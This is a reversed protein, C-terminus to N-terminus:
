TPISSKGKLELTAARFEPTTLPEVYAHGHTEFQRRYRRFNRRTDPGMQNLLAEYSSSLPLIANASYECDSAVAGISSVIREGAYLEYQTLPIALRIGLVAKRNLLYSLASSWVAEREEPICAIIPGHSADGLILGTRFGALKREKAYILGIIAGARWVVIVRPFSREQAISNLFFQPSLTALEDGILHKASSALRRVDECTSLCEVHLKSKPVAIATM